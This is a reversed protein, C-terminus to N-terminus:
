SRSLVSTKGKFAATLGSRGVGSGLGPGSGVGSGLGPGSGVGSGVSLGCPGGSIAVFAVTM